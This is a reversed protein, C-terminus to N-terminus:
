VAVCLQRWATPRKEQGSIFRAYSINYSSVFFVVFGRFYKLTFTNKSFQLSIPFLKNRGEKNGKKICFKIVSQGTKIPVVVDM